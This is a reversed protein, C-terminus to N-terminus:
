RTPTDAWCFSSYGTQCVPNDLKPCWVQRVKRVLSESKDPWRELSTWDGILNIELRWSRRRQNLNRIWWQDKHDHSPEQHVHKEGHINTSWDLFNSNQCLLNDIFPKKWSWILSLSRTSRLSRLGRLTLSRSVKLIKSIEHLKKHCIKKNPHEHILRYLATMFHLWSDM